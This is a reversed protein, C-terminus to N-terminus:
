SINYGRYFENYNRVFNEPTEGNGDYFTTLDRKFLVNQEAASNIFADHEKQSKELKSRHENDDVPNRQNMEDM